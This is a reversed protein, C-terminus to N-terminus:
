PLLEHVMKLWDLDPCSQGNSYQFKGDKNKRVQSHLLASAEDGFLITVNNFLRNYSQESLGSGSCLEHDAMIFFSTLATKIPHQM